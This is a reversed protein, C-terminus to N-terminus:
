LKILRGGQSMINDILILVALLTYTIHFILETQKGKYDGCLWSLHEEPFTQTPFSLPHSLLTRVWCLQLHRMLCSLGQTYKYSCICTYGTTLSDMFTIYSCTYACTHFSKHMCLNASAPLIMYTPSHTHKHTDTHTHTRQQTILHTHSHSSWETHSACLMGVRTPIAVTPTSTCKSTIGWIWIMLFDSSHSIALRRCHCIM